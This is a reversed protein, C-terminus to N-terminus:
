DNTVPFVGISADDNRGHRRCAPSLGSPIGKPGSDVLHIGAHAPMVFVESRTRLVGKSRRIYKNDDIILDCSGSFRPSM